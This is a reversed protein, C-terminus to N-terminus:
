NILMRNQRRVFPVAMPVLIAGACAFEQTLLSSSCRILTAWLWMWVHFLNMSYINMNHVSPVVSNKFINRMSYVLDMFGDFESM